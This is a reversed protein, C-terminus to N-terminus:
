QEGTMGASATGPIAFQGGQWAQTADPMQHVSMGSPDIPSGALNAYSVPNNRTMRSNRPRKM